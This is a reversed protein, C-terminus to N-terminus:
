GELVVEGGGETARNGRMEVAATYIKGLAGGEEGGGGEERVADGM